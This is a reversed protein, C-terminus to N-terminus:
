SRKYTWIEYAMAPEESHHCIIHEKREDDLDHLVYIIDPIYGTKGNARVLQRVQMIIGHKHM